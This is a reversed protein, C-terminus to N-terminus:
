EGYVECSGVTVTRGFYLASLHFGDIYHTDIVSGPLAEYHASRTRIMLRAVLICPLAFSFSIGIETLIPQSDGDLSIFGVLFRFISSVGNKLWIVLNAVYVWFIRNLWM